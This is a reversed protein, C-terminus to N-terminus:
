INADGYLVCKGRYGLLFGERHMSDRENVQWCGDTSKTNPVWDSGCEGRVKGGDCSGKAVGSVADVNVIVCV